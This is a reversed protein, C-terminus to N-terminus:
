DREAAHEEAGCDRGRTALCELAVDDPDEHEAESVAPVPQLKHQQLESDLPRIEKAVVDDFAKGAEALERKLIDIREVQYKAPRGEWQAIGGYLEDLHERIRQEGTIAGGETTAVILKKV